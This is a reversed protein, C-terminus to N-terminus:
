IIEIIGKKEAEDIFELVNSKIIEHNGQFDESLKKVIYNMDRPKDILAWIVSSTENLEFYLGTDGNLIVTIDGLDTSYSNANQKFLKM